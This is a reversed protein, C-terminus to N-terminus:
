DIEMHSLYGKSVADALLKTTNDLSARAQKIYSSSRLGYEGPSALAKELPVVTYHRLGGADHRLTWAPLYEVAALRANGGYKKEIKFNLIMCDESYKFMARWKGTSGARQTSIFNGLSYAVFTNGGTKGNPLVDVTQLWHPHSGIVIDVGAAALGVALKRQSETIKRTYETGWHMFFVVMEAGEVRMAQAADAMDALDATLTTPAFTNILRKSEESMKRRDNMLLTKGKWTTFTYAAFGIKVGKVDVVAYPKAEADARTGVCVFGRGGLVDLTRRIGAERRDYCHNNATSVLDLGAGRVADAAEDPASFNLTGAESYLKGGLTSEFNGVALDAGGLIDKVYQFCYSFDHTKTKKDYASAIQGYQFMIDGVAMINLEIPEPEPTPLPTFTPAPLTPSVTETLPSAQPAAAPLRTKAVPVYERIGDGCGCLLYCLAAALLGLRKM